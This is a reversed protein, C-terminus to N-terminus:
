HDKGFLFDSKGTGPFTPPECLCKKTQIPWALVM